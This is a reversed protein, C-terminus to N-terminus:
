YVSGLSVRRWNADAITNVAIAHYVYSGDSVIENAIGVTGDVGNELTVAGWAGNALDSTTALANAATGSIKAAVTQETDTNTTATVTAHIATGTSYETGATLGANIALLLNDLATASTAGFLVQDAVAAAPANTESLVDVWSYTRGDITASEVAVGATSAGTGGGITTDAWSYTASTDETVEANSATGHIRVVIKQTTAANDTAVVTPHATTGAYYETGFSGTLNIAAKLNDLSVAASVGRQIDFAQTMTSMFRYVVSGITVTETDSVDVGTSTLVTEGHTGPTIVGTLTCIGTAAVANVPTGDELALTTLAVAALDITTALKEATVANANLKGTTVALNNIKATTVALDVIEDTDITEGGKIANMANFLTEREGQSLNPIHNPNPM